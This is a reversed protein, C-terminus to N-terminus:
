PVVATYLPVLWLAWGDPDRITAIMDDFRAITEELTFRTHAAIAGAYGDRWAEFIAAFTERPVRVTDVPLYHAEIRELGAARLIPFLHRGIFLDTGFAPGVKGPAESWFAEAGLRTPHVWIMGYDEAIVHLRGGSRTVRKLEDVVKEPTPVAQLVHRCVTLDFAADPHPLAFANGRHFRLRDGFRTYRARATELHAAILDVGMVEADPFLVALRSTIEGTGCGVDLIRARPSPPHARFIGVERPWIAEAQAALTRVMSEHAMQEAQPNHPDGVEGGDRAPGREAGTTM